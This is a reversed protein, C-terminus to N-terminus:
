RPSPVLIEFFDNKWVSDYGAEHVFRDFVQWAAERDPSESRPSNLPWTSNTTAGLSRVVIPLHAGVKRKEQLRQDSAPDRYLMPWPNNLWASTQTLYHVTPIDPYALLADGPKVWQPLVDLLESLVRAREFTTHTGWLLPHAVSQTLALRHTSDRYTYFWSSVLSYSILSLGLTAAALRSAHTSALFPLATHVGGQWLWILLLPLALWMGHTANRIGNNSGLPVLMLVSLAIFIFVVLQPRARWEKFAIWLLGFYLLGPVAWVWSQKLSLVIALAPAALVVSLIRVRAPRVVIHRLVFLGAGLVLAALVAAFLHDRFFLKILMGGSHTSASDTAKGFIGQLSEVWLTGHGHTLILAVVLALGLGYGLVFLLCWRLGKTWSWSHLAAHLIVALVLVIGLLNPFRIFLNAGLMVGALVVWRALGHQLGRFLAASGMIYFLGTLDNYNIWNANAKTAFLFAVFVCCALAWSRSFVSALNQFALVGTLAIVMSAALKYAVLSGGLAVGLWHGIFLTLWNLLFYTNSEPALYFQQYSSISFGLDTLDLGQWVFLSSWGFIGLGLALHIHKKNSTNM